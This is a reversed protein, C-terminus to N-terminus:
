IEIAKLPEVNCAMGQDMRTFSKLNKLQLPLGVRNSRITGTAYTELNALKMFLGVRSFYNNTVVVHGQGHLGNLLSMVVGCIM